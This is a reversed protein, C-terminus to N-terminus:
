RSARARWRRPSAPGRRELMHLETWPAGLVIAAAAEDLLQGKRVLIKGGTAARVDHAAIRGVLAAPTLGERRLALAKV